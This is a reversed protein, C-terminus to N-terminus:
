EGGGSHADLIERIEFQFMEIERISIEILERVWVLDSKTFEMKQIKDELLAKERETM